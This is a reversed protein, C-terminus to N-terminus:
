SANKAANFKSYIYIIPFLLLPTFASTFQQVVGYITIYLYKDNYTKSIASLLIYTFLLVTYFVILKKTISKDNFLLHIIFISGSTNILLHTKHALWHCYSLTKSNTDIALKNFLLQYFDYYLSNTDEKFHFGLYLMISFILLSIIWKTTTSNIM